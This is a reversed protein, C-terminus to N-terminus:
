VMARGILPSAVALALTVLAILVILIAGISIPDQAGAPWTLSRREGGPHLYSRRLAL